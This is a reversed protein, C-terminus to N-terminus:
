DGQARRRQTPDAPNGGAKRPEGIRGFEDILTKTKEATGSIVVNVPWVPDNLLNKIQMATSAYNEKATPSLLVNHIEDILLFVTEYAQLM